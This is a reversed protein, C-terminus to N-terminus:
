FIQIEILIKWQLTNNILSEFLSRETLSLRIGIAECTTLEDSIKPILIM